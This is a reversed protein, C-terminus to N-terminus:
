PQSASPCWLDRPLVICHSHLAQDQEQARPSASIVPFGRGSHSPHLRGLLRLARLLVRSRGQCCGQAGKCNLVLKEWRGAQDGTGSTRCGSHIGAQWM